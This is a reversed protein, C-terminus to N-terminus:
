KVGQAAILARYAARMGLDLNAGGNWAEQMIGVAEDESLTVPTPASQQARTNWRATATKRDDGYQEANCWGFGSVCSVRGASNIWEADGGCFPCPLLNEEQTM